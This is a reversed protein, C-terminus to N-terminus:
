YGANEVSSNKPKEKYEEGLRVGIRQHARKASLLIRPADQHL